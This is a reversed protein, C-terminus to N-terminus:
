PLRFKPRNRNKDWLKAGGQIEGGMTEGGMIEGRWILEFHVFIKLNQCSVTICVMLFSHYLTTRIKTFIIPIYHM